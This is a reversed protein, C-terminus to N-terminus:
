LSEDDSSGRPDVAARPTESTLWLVSFGREDSTDSELHFSMLPLWKRRERSNSSCEDKLQMRNSCVRSLKYWLAPDFSITKFYIIRYGKRQTRRPGM